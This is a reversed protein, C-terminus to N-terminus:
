FSILHKGLAGENAFQELLSNGLPDSVHRSLWHRPFECHKHYVNKIRKLVIVCRPFWYASDKHFNMNKHHFTLIIWFESCKVNEVIFHEVLVCRQCGPQNDYRVEPLTKNRTIYHLTAQYLDLMRSNGQELTWQCIKRQFNRKPFLHNALWEFNPLLIM